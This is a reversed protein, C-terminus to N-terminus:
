ARACTHTYRVGAQLVCKGGHSQVRVSEIVHMLMGEPMSVRACARGRTRSFLPSPSIHAAVAVTLAAPAYM